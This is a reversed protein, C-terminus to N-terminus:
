GANVVEELAHLMEPSAKALDKMGKRIKARLDDLNTDEIQQQTSDIKDAWGFQNKMVFSWAGPVFGKLAGSSGLRGLQYWYAMCLTRGMDVFEQFAVVTDYLENFRKLTIGLHKAVEVDFAGGEYLARAEDLLEKNNKTQSM